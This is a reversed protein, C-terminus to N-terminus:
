LKLFNQLQAWAKEVQKQTFEPDWLTSIVVHAKTIQEVNSIQSALRDKADSETFGNRECLRKM